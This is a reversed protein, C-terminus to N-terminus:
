IVFEGSAASNESHQLDSGSDWYGFSIALLYWIFNPFSFLWINVILPSGGDPAIVMPSVTISLVVM